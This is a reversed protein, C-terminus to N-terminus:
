GVLFRDCTEERHGQITHSIADLFTSQGWPSVDGMISNNMQKEEGHESAISKM